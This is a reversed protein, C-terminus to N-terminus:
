NFIGGVSDDVTLTVTCSNPGAETVPTTNTCNSSWGGFKGSGAPATLTVTTGIPYTALCVPAGFGAGPSGPGCHIVDKTGTASDATILWETTNLGANFVTLTSLLSSSESGPFCSGPTLPPNPLVLPCSFTATATAVTGDLASTEEAIVVVTGTGYATIIGAQAGTQGTTNIPFDHPDSSIWTLSPDNTLDKQYPATSFTGFALFQGTGQINGITVASPIISLSLLPEPAATLTTTVTATATLVSLDKNTLTATITTNGVSVGTVLGPSNTGTGVTAVSPISSTWTVMSTVDQNLGTAGSTGLAVLQGTQGSASLSLTGPGVTIATFAESAGATVTFTGTATVVSGDGAPVIASITTTGQGVGTAVGAQSITAVQTSSSSWLANGTEDFTAGGSTTGIAIFQATQNPSSVTQASPILTLSTLVSSGGGGSGGTVTVAVTNSTILGGFGGTSATITTTGAGGGTVLGTASVNAVAPISSAWVVTGTINSNTPPHTGHNTTGIATLQVTAGAGLTVTNPSVAISDIGTSSGCGIFPLMMGASLLAVVGFRVRMSIEEHLRVPLVGALLAGM